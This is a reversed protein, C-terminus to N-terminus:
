WLSELTTLFVDNFLNILLYYIVKPVFNYCDAEIYGSPEVTMRSVETRSDHLEFRPGM